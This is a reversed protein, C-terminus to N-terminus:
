EGGEGGVGGAGRTDDPPAWAPTSGLDVRDLRVVGLLAEPLEDDGNGQILVAIDIVLGRVAGQVLGVVHAATRSSGVDVDV